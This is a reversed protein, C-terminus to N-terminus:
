ASGNKSGDHPQSNTASRSRKVSTPLGLAKSYLSRNVGSHRSSSGGFRHTRADTSRCESKEQLDVVSVRSLSKAVVREVLLCELFLWARGMKCAPVEGARALRMLTKPHVKLLRAAELLNLTPTTLAPQPPGLVTERERSSLLSLTPM